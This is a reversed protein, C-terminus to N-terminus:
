ITKMTKNAQKLSFFTNAKVSDRNAFADELFIFTDVDYALLKTVIEETVEDSILICTRESTIIDRGDIKSRHWEAGLSVGSRLFADAAIEEANIKSSLTMPLLLPLGSSDSSTENHFPSKAVKFVRLGKEHAGEIKKM